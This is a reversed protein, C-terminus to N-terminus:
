GRPDAVVGVFLPTATERDHIVYLYPRDLHLQEPDRGGPASTTGVSVATAAAAETGEEDVTITARHAVTGIQLQEETTIASFDADDTFATPMGLRALVDNLDADWDHQWKPVRLDVPTPRWGGLMRSLGGSAWAELTTAVDKRPRALAMALDGGDYPVLTAECHDDAYWQETSGAMTPVEVREDDGTTFPRPRTVHEQFPDQWPAALYLANVLVLRTRPTVSNPGVVQPILDHTRERTWDNIQEIAAEPDSRFDVLSMGAGYYQALADLFPDAVDLDRQGWLSNAIEVVVERDDRLTRSRSEMLQCVTNLHQHFAAPDDIGLVEDMETATSGAAGNRTMALAVLVSFPSAVLNSGPEALAALMRASLDAVAEPATGPATAPRRDLSSRAQEPDGLRGCGALGGLLPASALALGGTLLSRRAVRPLSLDPRTPTM